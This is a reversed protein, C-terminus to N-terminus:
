FKALIHAVVTKSFNELYLYKRSILLNCIQFRRIVYKLVIYPKNVDWSDSVKQDKLFVIFKVLISFNNM